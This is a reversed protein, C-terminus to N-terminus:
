WFKWWMWWPKRPKSASQDAGPPSAAAQLPNSVATESPGPPSSVPEPRRFTWRQRVTVTGRGRGHRDQLEAVTQQLKAGREPDVMAVFNAFGEISVMVNQSAGWRKGAPGDRDIQFLVARFRRLTERPVSVGSNVTLGTVEQRRSARQIRTKDPHLQFSEQSVAHKVQRLVRGVNQTAEGSASFTMDDAYRTYTFGNKQSLTHLRADLGRCIVNTLAPSTPAGQPLRRETRAVHFTRGDLAVERREPESCLLAFVTSIQGSYGLSKFVGRIRRFTVTPFFDQIDVNVVVGSSTHQQANTVISRDRRFGHAADHVEVQDLIHHLIWHQIRKLRPKPASIERVGGTKKPVAFKRYHTIEATRRHFALWRLEGVSIEMAEAVEVISQLNPLANSRLRDEDTTQQNLTTSVSDGLYVIEKQKSEQWAAARQVREQERREKTEQRRRRFEEMRKRRAEEHLAEINRLRAAEQTLRRQERELEGQRRIDEAPDEPKDTDRSWFGLRIMEELIVEDRSSERIRDYIEQRTTMHHCAGIHDLNRTAAASERRFARLVPDSLELRAVGTRQIRNASDM